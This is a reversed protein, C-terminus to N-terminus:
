SAPPAETRGLSAERWRVFAEIRELSVRNSAVMGSMGSVLAVLDQVAAIFAQQEADREAARALAARLEAVLETIESAPIPAPQDDEGEPRYGFAEAIEGHAGLIADILLARPRSPQNIGREIQSVYSDGAKGPIGDAEEAARIAHALDTQSMGRESRYKRM